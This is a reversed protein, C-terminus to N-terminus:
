SKVRKKEQKRLCITIHYYSPGNLQLRWLLSPAPLVILLAVIQDGDEGGVCLGQATIFKVRPLLFWWTPADPVLKQSMHYM